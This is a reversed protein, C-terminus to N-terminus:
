QRNQRSKLLRKLLGGRGSEEGSKTAETTSADGDEPEESDRQGFRELLGELISRSSDNDSDASDVESDSDSGGIGLRSLLGSEALQKLMPGADVNQDTANSVLEQVFRGLMKGKGVDFQPEDLTGGVPVTFSPSGLKRMFESDGMREFPLAANGSLDLSRDFSVDGNTTLVLSPLVKPLGFAFGSHNVVGDRVNFVIESEDAVQLDITRGSPDGEQQDSLSAIAGTIGRIIAGEVEANVAHLTLKGDLEMAQIDAVNLQCHDVALACDGRVGLAQSLVPTVFQLGHDCLVPSVRFPSEPIRVDLNTDQGERDLDVYLVLTDTVGQWESKRDTKVQVSADFVRFQVFADRDPATIVKLIGKNVDINATAARLEEVLAPDLDISVVPRNIRIEGVEKGRTILGLIGKQTSIRDVAVVERGSPSRVRLDGVQVPSFWGASLSDLTVNLGTEDSLQEQISERMWAAAIRPLFAILLLILAVVALAIRSRRGTRQKPADSKLSSKQDPKAM